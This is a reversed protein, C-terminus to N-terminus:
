EEHKKLDIFDEDYQLSDGERMFGRAENAEPQDSRFLTVTETAIGSSSTITLEALLPQNSWVLRRGPDEPDDPGIALGVRDLYYPYVNNFEFNFLKKASGYQGVEFPIVQDFNAMRESLVGSERIRRGWGLSGKGLLKEGLPSERLSPSYRIRLRADTVSGSASGGNRFIVDGSVHLNVSTELSKQEGQIEYFGRSLRFAIKPKSSKFQSYYLGLNIASIVLALISIAVTLLDVM